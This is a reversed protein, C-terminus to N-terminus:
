LESIGRKSNGRGRGMYNGRGRGRGRTTQVLDSNLDRNNQASRPNYPPNGPSSKAKKKPKQRRLYEARVVSHSAECIYAEQKTKGAALKQLTVSHDFMDFPSVCNENLVHKVFAFYAESLTDIITEIMLFMDDSNVSKRIADMHEPCFFDSGPTNHKCFETDISHIKPGGRGSYLPTGVFYKCGRRIFIRNIFLRRENHLFMEPTIYHEDSNPMENTTKELYESIKASREKWLKIAISNQEENLVTNTKLYEASAGFVKTWTTLFARLKHFDYIFNVPSKTTEATDKVIDEDAAAAESLAVEVDDAWATVETSKPDVPLSDVSVTPTPSTDTPLDTPLTTASTIATATNAEM